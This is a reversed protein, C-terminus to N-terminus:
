IYLARGIALNLNVQDISCGSTNVFINGSAAHLVNAPDNMTAGKAVTITQGTAFTKPQMDQSFDLTGGPNITAGSGFGLTGTSNWYVTGGNVLLAALETMGYVAVTGGDVRLSGSSSFSGWHTTSGGNAYLSYVGAGPGIYVQSDGYQNSVYGIKVACSASDTPLAAIGVNGKLVEVTNSGNTGRWCFAYLGTESSSGTTSVVIATQESGTDVRVLPSGSGTGYGVNLASAGIALFTPRYQQYKGTYQPLGISGTFSAAINLAALTVTSQSLGYLISASTNAIYVTDGTAPVSGTSWNAANGWDNPGTAAVFETPGSVTGTGGSVSAALAFPLGATNGIANVGPGSCTWAIEVFEPITSAELAATLAAATSAITGGQGVVSVSKGNITISYTSNADYATIQLGWVGAAAVANGIWSLIAM